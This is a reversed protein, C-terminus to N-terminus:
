NNLLETIEYSRINLKDCADDVAMGHDDGHALLPHAFVGTGNWVYEQMRQATKGLVAYDESMGFDYTLGNTAALFTPLAPALNRCLPWLWSSTSPNTPCTAPISSSFLSSCRGPSKRRLSCANRSWGWALTHPSCSTPKRSKTHLATPYTSCLQIRLVIMDLAYPDIM